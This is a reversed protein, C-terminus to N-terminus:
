KKFTVMPNKKKEEREKREGVWGRLLGKKKQRKEKEGV